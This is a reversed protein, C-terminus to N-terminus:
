LKYIAADCSAMTEFSIALVMHPLGRKQYETTTITSVERGLPGRAALDQLIAHKKGEFAKPVLALVSSDAFSVIPTLSIVIQPIAGDFNVAWSTSWRIDAESLAM